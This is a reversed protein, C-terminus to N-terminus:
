RSYDDKIEVSGTEIDLETRLFLEEPLPQNWLYAEIRFLRTRMPAPEDDELEVIRLSDPLIRPEFRLICRKIALELTRSDLSSGIRGAFDPLGFNVVSSEVLPHDDLDQVSALNVANFLWELDRRVQKRLETSSVARQTRSERLRHPENDTLRDLLSPQLRENANLDYM